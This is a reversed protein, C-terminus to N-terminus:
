VIKVTYCIKITTINLMLGKKIVLTKSINCIPKLFNQLDQGEVEIVWVQGAFDFNYLLIVKYIM